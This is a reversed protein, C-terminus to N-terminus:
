VDSVEKSVIKAALYRGLHKDIVDALHLSEDWENDGHDECVNRLAQITEEREVVLAAVLTDEYELARITQRLTSTLAARYGQRHHRERMKDDTM